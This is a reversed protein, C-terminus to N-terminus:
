FEAYMPDVPTYGVGYAGFVVIAMFLVILVGWRVVPGRSAIYASLDHGREKFVGVALVVLM